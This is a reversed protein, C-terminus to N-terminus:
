KTDWYEIASFAFMGAGLVLLLGGGGFAIGGGVLAISWGIIAAGYSRDRRKAKEDETM